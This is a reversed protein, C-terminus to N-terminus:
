TEESSLVMDLWQYNYEQNRQRLETFRAHMECQQQM